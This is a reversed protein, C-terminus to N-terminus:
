AAQLRSGAGSGGTVGEAGLEVWRGYHPYFPDFERWRDRKLSYRGTTAATPPQYDAVATLVQPANSYPSPLYSIPPRLSNLEPSCTPQQRPESLTLVCWLAAATSPRGPCCACYWM